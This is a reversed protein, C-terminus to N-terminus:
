PCERLLIKHEKKELCLREKGELVGEATYGEPLNILRTLYKIELDGKQFVAISEPRLIANFASVDKPYEVMVDGPVGVLTHVMMRIDEATNIKTVTESKAYAQATSGLLLIIGLVIVVESVMVLVKLSAKTNM